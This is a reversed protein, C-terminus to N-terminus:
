HALKLLFGVDCQMAFEDDIFVDFRESGTFETDSNQVVAPLTLHLRVAGLTPPEKLSRGILWPAVTVSHFTQLALARQMLEDQDHADSAAQFSSALRYLVGASLFKAFAIGDLGIWFDDIDPFLTTFEALKRQAEDASMGIAEVSGGREVSGLTSYLGQVLESGGTAASLSFRASADGDKLRFEHSADRQLPTKLRCKVRLWERDALRERAHRAVERKIYLLPLMGHVIIAPSGAQRARELDFHIPNFDGSFRAWSQLHSEEFRWDKMM